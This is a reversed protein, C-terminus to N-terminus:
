SQFPAWTGSQDIRQVHEEVVPKPCLQLFTRFAMALLALDDMQGLLPMLDPLFDFPSVAYGFAALLLGKAWMSVRQDKMLGLFLRAFNPLHTVFRFVDWPQSRRVMDKVQTKMGNKVSREGESRAKGIGPPPGGSRVSM